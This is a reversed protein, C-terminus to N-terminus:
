LGLSKTARVRFEKANLLKLVYEMKRCVIDVQALASFLALPPGVTLTRVRVKSTM